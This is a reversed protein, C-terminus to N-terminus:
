YVKLPSHNAILDFDKDNHLLAAQHFIAYFAILYDNSKSITTGKKRIQRYLDAGGLAAEVPPITLM